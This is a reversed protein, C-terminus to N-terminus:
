SPTDRHLLRWNEGPARILALDGYLRIAIRRADDYIEVFMANRAAERFGPVRAPTTAALTGRAMAAMTGAAKRLSRTAFM